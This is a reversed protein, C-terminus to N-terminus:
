MGNPVDRDGLHIVSLGVWRERFSNQVKSLIRHMISRVSPCQQVRQYGQGTDCLRYGESCMDKDAYYWLLPMNEMTERWFSLSQLVYTFQTAHDHSLKAGGPTRNFGMSFGEYLNTLSYGSGLYGASPAPRNSRGGGSLDLGFQAGGEPYRDRRFHRKLLSIVQEVPKVNFIRYAKNDGISDIVRVIDAETFTDSRYKRVLAACAAGKADTEQKLEAATKRRSTRGANAGSRMSGSGTSSDGTEAKMNKKRREGSLSASRAGESTSPSDEFEMEAESESDTEMAAGGTSANEAECGSSSDEVYQEIISSAVGLNPDRIFNMNAEKEKLFENITLIDKVFSAGTENKVQYSECDMVIYMLKGYTNRMKQPNMIKFRRGVEFLDRFFPINANLSKDVILDEGKTLNNAMLLGLSISLVDVLCELIRSQKSKHTHSFTVDVIDTYECVELANDLVKLLVREENTLRMPIYNVMKEIGPIAGSYKTEEVGNNDDNDEESSSYKERNHYM